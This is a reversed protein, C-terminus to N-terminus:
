GCRFETIRGSEDVIITLRNSRIELAEPGDRRVIRYTQDIQSVDFENLFLGIYAQYRTASCRSAGTTRSVSVTTIVSPDTEAADGNPVRGQASYSACGGQALALMLALISGHKM